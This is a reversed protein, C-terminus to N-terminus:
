LSTIVSFYSSLFHISSYFSLAVLISTTFSHSAFSPLRFLSSFRYLIVFCQNFSHKFSRRLLSYIDFSHGLHNSPNHISTMFSVYALPFSQAASTFPGPIFPRSSHDLHWLSHTLKHNLSHLMDYYLIFRPFIGTFVLNGWLAGHISGIGRSGSFFLGYGTGSM